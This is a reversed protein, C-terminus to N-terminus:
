FLMSWPFCFWGELMPTAAVLAGMGVVYLGAATLAVRPPVSLGEYEKGPGGSGPQYLSLAHKESILCEEDPEETTPRELDDRLLLQTM